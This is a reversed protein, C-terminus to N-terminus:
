VAAAPKLLLKYGQPTEEWYPTMLVGYGKRFKEQFSELLRHTEEKYTMTAWHSIGKFIFAIIIDKDGWIPRELIAWDYVRILNGEYDDVDHPLRLCPCRVLDRPNLPERDVYEVREFLAPRKEQAEETTNMTGMGIDDLYKLKIVM